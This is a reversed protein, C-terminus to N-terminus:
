ALARAKTLRPAASFCHLPKTPGGNNQLGNPDLKPDLPSAITGTRDTVATFGMSGDSKGILNFGQSNFTGQVDPSFFATNLAILSSKSTMTGANYVGGGGNSANASNDIITSNTLNM